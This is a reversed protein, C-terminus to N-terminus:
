FIPISPLQYKEALRRYEKQAAPTALFGAGTFTGAWSQALALKEGQSLKGATALGVKFAARLEATTVLGKGPSDPQKANAFITRIQEITSPQRTPGGRMVQFNDASGQISYGDPLRRALASLVQEPQQGRSLNLNITKGGVEFQAFSAVIGNNTATGRISLQRGTVRITLGPDNEFVKVEVPFKLPPPLIPGIIGTRSPGAVM